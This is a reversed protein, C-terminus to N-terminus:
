RPHPRPNQKILQDAAANDFYRSFLSLRWNKENKQSDHNDAEHGVKTLGESRVYSRPSVRSSKQRVHLWKLTLIEDNEFSVSDVMEGRVCLWLTVRPVNPRKELKKKKKESFTQRRLVERIGDSM